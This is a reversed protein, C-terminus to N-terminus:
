TYVVPARAAIRASRRLGSANTMAPAAPAVPASRRPPPPILPVNANRLPSFGKPMIIGCYFGEPEIWQSSLPCYMNIRAKLAKAAKQLDPYETQKEAADCKEYMVDRIEKNYAIVPFGMGRMFKLYKVMKKTQLDKDTTHVLADELLFRSKKRLQPLTLSHDHINSRFYSPEATTMKNVEISNQQLELNTKLKKGCNM